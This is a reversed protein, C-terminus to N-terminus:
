GILPKKSLGIIPPAAMAKLLTLTTVFLKRRRLFRIAEPLTMWNEIVYGLM